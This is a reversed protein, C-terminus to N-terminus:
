IDTSLQFDWHIIYCYSSSAYLMFQKNRDLLSIVDHLSDNPLYLLNIDHQEQIFIQLLTLMTNQLNSHELINLIYKNTKNNVQYKCNGTHLSL